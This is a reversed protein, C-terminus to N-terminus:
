TAEQHGKAVAALALGVGTTGSTAEIVTGGPRLLGAKEAEEIMAPGIRDKVSGGPNLYELKAAVTCRLGRTVKQLRVIPTHGIVSAVTDHIMDPVGRDFRPITDPGPAWQWGPAARAQRAARTGTTEGGTRGARWSRPGRSRDSRRPRGGAAPVRRRSRLRRRARAARRRDRARTSSAARRPDARRARA